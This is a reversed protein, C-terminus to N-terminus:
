WRTLRGDRKPGLRGGLAGRVQCRPASCTTQARSAAGAVLTVDPHRQLDAARTQCGPNSPPRAAATRYKRTRQMALGIPPGHPLACARGTGLVPRDVRVTGGARIVAPFRFVGVARSPSNGHGSGSARRRVKNQKWRGILRRNDLCWPAATIGRTDDTKTLRTLICLAPFAELALQELHRKLQSAALASEVRQVRDEVVHPFIPTHCSRALKGSVSGCGGPRM